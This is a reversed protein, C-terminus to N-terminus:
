RDYGALGWFQRVQKKTSPIVYNALAQIIDMLPGIPGGGRVYVLYRNRFRCKAPNATQDARSILKLAVTVLCVHSDWDLSYIIIDYLYVTAYHAHPFLVWDMLRQFTTSVGHQGLPINLFHYLEF